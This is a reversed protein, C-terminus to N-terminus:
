VGRQARQNNLAKAVSRAYDPYDVPANDFTGLDLVTNGGSEIADSISNKLPFVGHDSGLAVIM